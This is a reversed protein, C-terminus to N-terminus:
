LRTKMHRAFDWVFPSKVKQRGGLNQYYIPYDGSTQRAEWASTRLPEDRTTVNSVNTLREHSLFAHRVGLFTQPPPKLRGLNELSAVKIQTLPVPTWCNLPNTILLIWRRRGRRYLLFLFSRRSDCFDPLRRSFLFEGSEGSKNGDMGSSRPYRRNRTKM